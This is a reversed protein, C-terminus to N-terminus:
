KAGAVLCDLGPNLKLGADRYEFKFQPNNAHGTIIGTMSAKDSDLPCFYAGPADIHDWQYDHIEVHNANPWTDDQVKVLTAFPGNQYFGFVGVKGGRVLEFGVMPEGGEMFCHTFTHSVSQANNCQFFARCNVAYVNDVYLLDAHTSGDGELTAIGVESEALLCDSIRHRGTPPQSRAEVAICARARPGSPYPQFTPWRRGYIQLDSIKQGTGCLVIVDSDTAPNVPVIRTAVQFQPNDDHTASAEDTPLGAGGKGTLKGGNPHYHVPAEVFIIGAPADVDGRATEYVQTNAHAAAISNAKLGAARAAAAWLLALILIIRFRTM